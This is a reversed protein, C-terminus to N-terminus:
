VNHGACLAPVPLRCVAHKRIGNRKRCRWSDFCCDADSWIAMSRNYDSVFVTDM